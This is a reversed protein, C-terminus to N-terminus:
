KVIESTEHALKVIPQAKLYGVLAEKEEEGALLLQLRVKELEQRRTAVEVGEGLTLLVCCNKNGNWLGCLSEECECTFKKVVGDESLTKGNFKFPCYPVARKPM